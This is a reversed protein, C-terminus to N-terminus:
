DAPFIRGVTRTFSSSAKALLRKEAPPMEPQYSVEGHGQGAQSTLGRGCRLRRLEAKSAGPNEAKIRAARNKHKGPSEPAPASEVLQQRSMFEFDKSELRSLKVKTTKDTGLVDCFARESDVGKVVLQRDSMRKDKDRYIQGVEVTM